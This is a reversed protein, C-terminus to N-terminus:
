IILRLEEKIAELLAIEVAARDPRIDIENVQLYIGNTTIGVDVAIEREQDGTTVEDWSLIVSIYDPGIEGEETAYDTETNIIEWSSETSITGQGKLALTNLSNLMEPIELESVVRSLADRDTNTQETEERIHKEREQRILELEPLLTTIKEIWDM